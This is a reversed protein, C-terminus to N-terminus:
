QLTYFSHPRGNKFVSHCEEDEYSFMAVLFNVLSSTVPVGSYGFLGFGAPGLSFM